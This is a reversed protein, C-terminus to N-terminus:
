SNVRSPKEFTHTHKNTHTHTDTDPQRYDYTQVHAYENTYTGHSIQIGRDSLRVESRNALLEAQSRSHADTCRHTHADTCRHTQRYKQIETFKTHRHRHRHM